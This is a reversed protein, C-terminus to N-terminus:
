EIPKWIDFFTIPQWVLPPVAAKPRRGEKVKMKWEIRRYKFVWQISKWLNEYIESVPKVACGFRNPRENWVPKLKKWVPKSHVVLGTQPSVPKPSFRNRSLGTEGRQRRFGTRNGTEPETQPRSAGHTVWRGVKKGWRCRMHWYVCQGTSPVCEDIKHKKRRKDGMHRCCSHSNPEWIKMRM